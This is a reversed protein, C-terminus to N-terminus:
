RNRSVAFGELDETVAWGQAKLRRKALATAQGTMRLEGKAKGAIGKRATTFRGFRAATDATWSLADIPAATVVRGDRALAFPLGGLAVIQVYGGRGGRQRRHDDAMLEAQWRMFIATPRSDAAAARAAFAARGHVGTMSDLAAVMAAMDIPTYNRNALLAANLGPAVGMAALRGRNLDLIQAATYKRALEEIGVNNLK